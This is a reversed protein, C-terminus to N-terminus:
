LGAHRQTKSYTFLKAIGSLTLCHVMRPFSMWTATVTMILSEWPISIMRHSLPYVTM